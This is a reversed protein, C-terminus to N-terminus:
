EEEWNFSVKWDVIILNWEGDGVIINPINDNLMEYIAAKIQEKKPKGDINLKIKAMAEM